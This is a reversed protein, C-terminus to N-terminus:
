VRVVSGRLLTVYIQSSYTTTTSLLPGINWVSMMSHANLEVFSTRLKMVALQAVITDPRMTPFTPELQSSESLVHLHIVDVEWNMIWTVTDCPICYQTSTPSSPHSHSFVQESICKMWIKQQSSTENLHIEM